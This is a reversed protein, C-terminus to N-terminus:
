MITRYQEFILSFYTCIDIQFMERFLAIKWCFPFTSRKEPRHM